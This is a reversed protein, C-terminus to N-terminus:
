TEERGILIQKGTRESGGRATSFAEKVEDRRAYFLGFLYVAFFALYCSIMGFLEYGEPIVIRVAVMAAAGPLVCWLLGPTIVRVKKSVVRYSVAAFLCEAALRSAAAGADASKFAFIVVGSIISGVFAINVLSYMKSTMDMSILVGTTLVRVYSMPFLSLCLLQLALGGQAYDATFFLSLIYDPYLVGSMAIPLVVVLTLESLASALRSYRARDEVWAKSLLPFFVMIFSLSLLQIYFIQKFLAGYVGLAYEEGLLKLMYIQLGITVSSVLSAYLLALSDKFLFRYTVTKVKISFGNETILKLLFIASFAFRSLLYFVAAYLLRKEPDEVLDLIFFVPLFFAAERILTVVAVIRVRHKALFYWGAIGPVSLLVGASILLLPRLTPSDVFILTWLVILSFVALSAICRLILVGNVLERSEDRRAVERNGVYETGLSACLIAIFLVSDVFTFEGYLRPGLKNALLVFTALMLLGSVLHTASLIFVKEFTDGVPSKKLALLRRCSERLGNKPSDSIKLTM